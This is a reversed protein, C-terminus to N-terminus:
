TSHWLSKIDLCAMYYQTHLGQQFRRGFCPPRSHTTNPRQTEQDERHKSVFEGSAM